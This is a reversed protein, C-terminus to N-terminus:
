TLKNLYQAPSINSALHLSLLDNVVIEGVDYFGQITNRSVPDAASLHLAFYALQHKLPHYSGALMSSLLRPYSDVYDHKLDVHHKHWAESLSETTYYM